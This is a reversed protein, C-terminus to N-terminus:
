TRVSRRITAGTTHRFTVTKDQQQISLLTWGRGLSDGEKILKIGPSLPSTYALYPQTGIQNISRPIYDFQPSQQKRRQEAAAKNAASLSAQQQKVLDSLEGIKTDQGSATESLRKTVGYITTLDKRIDKLKQEATLNSSDVTESILTLKTELASVRDVLTVFDENTVFISKLSSFDTDENCAALLLLPILLYTLRNM